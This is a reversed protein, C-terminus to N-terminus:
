GAAALQEALHAVEAKVYDLTKYQSPPDPFPSVGFKEEMRLTFAPMYDMGHATDFGLWWVRDDEGPEVIHCIGHEKREPDDVCLSAFTLGGHVEVDVDDYDKGFVPHTEHVGVYGCLAGSNPSRVVLCPLGTDPDTFQMKDPENKWPGDPWESKDIFTYELDKM